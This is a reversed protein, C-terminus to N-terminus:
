NCQFADVEAKWPHGDGAAGSRPTYTLKEIQVDASTENRQGTWTDIWQYNVGDLTFSTRPQGGCSSPDFNRRAAPFTGFGISGQLSFTGTASTAVAYGTPVGTCYGCNPNSYTLLYKGSPEDYVVGPSEVKTLGGISKQGVNTGSTGWTTLQESAIGSEGSMTCFMTPNQGAKTFISFDGVGSCISLTPKNYSGYPAGATPGCPGAPGNCGMANFGNAPSHSPSNFWLIYVGDNAGWGTRQIVRPNFCGSGTAGCTANWTTGKWPDTSTPSFLLKPVSWNVMDTSEAVGLGCWPTNSVGWNFGCGYMTGYMYYKTGFKQITGDHLDVNAITYSTPPAANATTTSATSSIAVAAIVTLAALVYYRLKRMDGKTLLNLKPLERYSLHQSVAM